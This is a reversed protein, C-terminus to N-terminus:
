SPRTIWIFGTPQQQPHDTMMAAATNERVKHEAAKKSVEETSYFLLAARYDSTWGDVSFFTGNDLNTLALRM